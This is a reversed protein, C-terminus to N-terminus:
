VHEHATDHKGAMYMEGVQAIAKVVAATSATTM